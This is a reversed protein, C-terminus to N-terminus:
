PAFPDKLPENCALDVLAEILVHAGRELDAIAVKEDVDHGPYPKGPFWMGFAISRPLRKAYTGGGSIAPKMDIGTARRTAALLRKVIKAKPDFALPEGEYYGGLAVDQIRPGLWGRVMKEVHAKLRAGTWPLPRRINVVLELKDPDEASPRVVGPNVNWPKWGPAREVLGLSRGHTDEGCRRAVELLDVIGSPPLEGDVLRALAVLANRGGDINVGSHAARGTVTVAVIGPADSSFALTTGPMAQKKRLRAEFAGARDPAMKLLLEARDPVISATTGARLSLAEIAPAPALPRRPRPRPDTTVALANWAMEGIVVPLESDLVLTLEPPAREALYLTVDESGSEEDSGVLLRVTHTLPVGSEKLAKMVLLAQALPGKDDAAGRGQVHGDIVRAEFPPFSWAGEANVVDGHVMLGLVPAGPPGPLEIEVVTGPRSPVGERFALGLAAAKEELWAGQAVRAAEDGAVTPFRIAEVLLPVLAAKEHSEFRAHVPGAAGAPAAALPAVLLASLLAAACIV